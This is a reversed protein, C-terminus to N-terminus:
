RPFWEKPDRRATACVRDIVDAQALSIIGSRSDIWAFLNVYTLILNGDDDRDYTWALQGFFENITQQSANTDLLRRLETMVRVQTERKKRKASTNVIAIVGSIIALLILMIAPVPAHDTLTQWAIIGGIIGCWVLINRVWLVNGHRDAFFSNDEIMNFNKFNRSSWMDLIRGAIAAILAFTFLTNM